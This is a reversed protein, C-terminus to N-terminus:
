SITSSYFHLTRTFMPPLPFRGRILSAVGRDGDGIRDGGKPDELKRSRLGTICTEMGAVSLVPHLM